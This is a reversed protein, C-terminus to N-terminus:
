NRLRRGFGVGTVVHIGTNQCKRCLRWGRREARRPSVGVAVLWHNRVQGARERKIVIKNELSSLSVAAGNSYPARTGPGGADDEAGAGPVTTPVTPSDAGDLGEPDFTKRVESDAGKAEPNPSDAM